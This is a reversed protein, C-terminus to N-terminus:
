REHRRRTGDRAIASGPMCAMRDVATEGPREGIALCGRHINFGAIDNLAEQAVVYVSM